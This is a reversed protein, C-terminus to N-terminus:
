PHVLKKISLAAEAQRVRAELCAVNTLSVLEIIAARELGLVGSVENRLSRLAEQDEEVQALLLSADCPWPLQCLECYDGSAPVPEPRHKAKMRELAEAGPTPATM